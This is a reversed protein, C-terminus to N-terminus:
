RREEIFQVEVDPLLDVHFKESILADVDLGRLPGIGDATKAVLTVSRSEVMANALLVVFSRRMFAASSALSVWTEASADHKGALGHLNEKLLSLLKIFLSVQYQKSIFFGNENEVGLVAKGKSGNGCHLHERVIGAAVGTHDSVQLDVDGSLPSQLVVQPRPVHNAKCSDSAAEMNVVGFDLDVDPM